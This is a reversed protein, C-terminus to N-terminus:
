PKAVPAPPAVPANAPVAAPGMTRAGGLARRATIVFLDEFEARTLQGDRTTDAASIDQPTVRQAAVNVRLVGTLPAPVAGPVLAENAQLFGDKTADALNYAENLKARLTPVDLGGGEGKLFVMLEQQGVFGDAVEHAVSRDLADFLEDNLGSSQAEAENVVGDGNLDLMRVAWSAVVDPYHLLQNLSRAGLQANPTLKGLAPGRLQSGCASLSLAAVLALSCWTLPKLM